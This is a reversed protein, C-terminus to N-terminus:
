KALKLKNEAFRWFGADKVRTRLDHQNVQPQQSVYNMRKVIESMTMKM